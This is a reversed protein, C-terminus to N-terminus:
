GVAPQMAAVAQEMDAVFSKFSDGAEDLERSKM